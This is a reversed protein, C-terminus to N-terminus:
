DASDDPQYQPDNYYELSKLFAEAEKQIANREDMSVHKLGLVNPGMRPNSRLKKENEVLFNWYLLNFPCAGEGSRQKPNYKCGSCFDSMKNIYAASAIYPKTATKGSDANLGMGIVNPLVVWDHSDVYMALFWNAVAEPNIGALMAFNCLVMLREIHHNFGSDILRSIIMRLCQMETQGDWWFQPTPRTHSWGNANRLDPMQRSYQWHIYERWGIIQRIFGEVSQIPARGERFEMEARRCMSVADILGLNMMPSMVSHWLTGSRRSMADEYPGFDALRHSIFDDFAIAADARTVPLQFGETKGIHDPFDRDIERMVEQTLDDPEFTMAPPLEVNKPLPKRNEADYNWDGGAPNGDPEMLLQFQRRMSRYFHEMIVNKTTPKRYETQPWLFQTNELLHFQPGTSKAALEEQLIGTPYELARMSVVHGWQHKKWHGRLGEQFTEASICDVEWGGSQLEMAYHRLASVYLVLRKKHYPLAAYHRRSVILVVRVNKQHGGALHVAEALAPHQDAPLLQDPLIWAAVTSKM